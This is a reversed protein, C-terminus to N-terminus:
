IRWGELIEQVDEVSRAIEVPYGRAMLADHINAQKPTPYEGPAKVEIFFVRGGHLICLDPMGPLLGMKKLTTRQGHSINYHENPISFYFVGKISLYECIQQQITSEKM